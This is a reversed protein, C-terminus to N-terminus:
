ETFELWVDTFVQWRSSDLDPSVLPLLLSFLDRSEPVCLSKEVQRRTLSLVRGGEKGQYPSVQSHIAWGVESM